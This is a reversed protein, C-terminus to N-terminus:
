GSRQQSTLRLGNALPVDPPVKPPRNPCKTKHVIPVDDVAAPNAPPSRSRGALSPLGASRTTPAQGPPPPAPHDQHPQPRRDRHAGPRKTDIPIPRPPGCSSERPSPPRQGTHDDAAADPRTARAAHGACRSPDAAHHRPGTPFPRPLDGRLPEEAFEGLTPCAWRNRNAKLWM